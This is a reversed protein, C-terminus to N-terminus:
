SVLGKKLPQVAAEVEKRLIHHDDETDTQPYDLISPNVLLLGVYISMRASLPCACVQEFRPHKIREVFLLLGLFVFLCVLFWVM